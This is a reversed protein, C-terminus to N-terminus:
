KTIVQPHDQQTAIKEGWQRPKGHEKGGHEIMLISERIKEAKNGTIWNMVVGMVVSASSAVFLPLRWASKTGKHKSFFEPMETVVLGIFGGGAINSFLQAKKRQAIEGKWLDQLNEKTEQPM